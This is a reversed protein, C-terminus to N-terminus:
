EYLTRFNRIRRKVNNVYCSKLPYALYFIVKGATLFGAHTGSKRQNGDKLRRCLQRAPRREAVDEQRHKREPPRYHTRLPRSVRGCPVDECVFWPHSSVARARL